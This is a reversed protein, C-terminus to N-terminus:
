DIWDRDLLANCLIVGKVTKSDSKRSNEEPTLWQFNTYHQLRLLEEENRAQSIPCLHDLVPNECPKNGLHTMFAEYSCGLLNATKSRKTFGKLKLQNCILSRVQDTLKFLPDTQKRVRRYANIKEKNAQRYAKQLIKIKDKNAQHYRKDGERKKEKHAQRYESLYAVMCSKCEDQLGDRKSKNKSFASEDKNIKCKCCTKMGAGM